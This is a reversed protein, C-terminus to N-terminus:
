ELHLGHKEGYWGEEDIWKKIEALEERLRKMKEQERRCGAVYGNLFPGWYCSKEPTKRDTVFVKRAEKEWREQDTM